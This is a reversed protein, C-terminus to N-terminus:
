KEINSFNKYNENLNLINCNPDQEIFSHKFDSAKKIYNFNENEIIKELYSFKELIIEISLSKKLFKRLNELREINDKKKM